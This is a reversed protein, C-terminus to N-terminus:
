KISKIKRLKQIFVKLQDGDSNTWMDIDLVIIKLIM